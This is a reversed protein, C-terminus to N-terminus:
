NKKMIPVQAMTSIEYVKYAAKKFRVELINAGAKDMQVPTIQSEYNNEAVPATIRFRGENKIPNNNITIADYWAGGGSVEALEKPLKVNVDFVPFQADSPIQLKIRFMYENVGHKNNTTPLALIRRYEKPRIIWKPVTPDCEGVISVIEKDSGKYMKGHEVIARARDVGDANMDRTFEGYLARIGAEPFEIHRVREIYNNIQARKQALDTPGASSFSLQYVPFFASDAYLGTVNSYSGVNLKVFADLRERTASKVGNFIDSEFWKVIRDRHRAASAFTHGEKGFHLDRTESEARAWARAAIDKAAQEATGSLMQLDEAQESAKGLELAVMTASPLGRYRANSAAQAEPISTRIDRAATSVNAYFSAPPPSTTKDILANLERLQDTASALADAELNYRQVYEKLSELDPPVTRGCAKYLKEVDEIPPKPQYPKSDRKDRLQREYFPIAEGLRAGITKRARDLVPAPYRDSHSMFETYTGAGALFDATNGRSAKEKQFLTLATAYDHQFQIEDDVAARLLTYNQYATDNGASINPPFLSAVTKLQDNMAALSTSKSNINDLERAFDASEISPAGPSGLFTARGVRDDALTQKFEAYKNEFTFRWRPVYRYRLHLEVDQRVSDIVWFYVPSSIDIAYVSLSDASAAEDKMRTIPEKGDDFSRTLYSRIDTKASTQLILYFNDQQPRPFRIFYRSGHDLQFNDKDNKLEIYGREVPSLDPKPELEKFTACGSLLALAAVSLLTCRM